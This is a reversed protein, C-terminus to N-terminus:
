ARASEVLDGAAKAGGRARSLLLALSRPRRARPLYRRYLGFPVHDGVADHRGPESGIRELSQATREPSLQFNGPGQQRSYNKSIASSLTGGGTRPIHVFALLPQDAALVHPTPRPRPPPPPTPAAAPPPANEVERTPPDKKRTPPDKRATATRRAARSENRAAIRMNRAVEKATEAAVRAAESAASHQLNRRRLEEVERQLEGPPPANEDFRERAFRYLEADLANHEAILEVLEPTPEDLRSRREQTGELYSMPGVGLKRALLVVSEELREGVGVFWFRTLNEKARELADPPLDGFISEGGWLFRTMLNEYMTIKRALGAELSLDADEDLTIPPGDDHGDLVVREANLAYEWRTKLRQRGATTRPDGAAQAAYHGLVRSVPELLVTLYRTGSPLFQRCLGYPVPAVVAQLGPKSAITELASLAKQPNRKPKELTEVPAYGNALARSIAGGGTNAIKVVAIPGADNVAECPLEASSV